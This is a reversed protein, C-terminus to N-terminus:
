PHGVTITPTGVNLTTVAPVATGPATTKGSSRGAVLGAAAGGAVAVGIVIWKGHGHSTAGHPVPGPPGGTRARAIGSAPDAIYQFSVTGARAQEKSAIIRIEFRGPTRNLQLGRLGARGREDTTAVETRLGNVFTGGAGTEPLHFSVAAGAVPRGTEDTVEVLLPRASRAGPAYVAGEGEIIQIQLIAVQATASGSLAVVLAAAFCSLKV